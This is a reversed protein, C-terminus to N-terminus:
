QSARLLRLLGTLCQIVAGRRPERHRMVEVGDHGSKIRGDV